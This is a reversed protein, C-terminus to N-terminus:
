SVEQVTGTIEDGSIVGIIKEFAADSIESGGGSAAVQKYITADVTGVSADPTTFGSDTFSEYQITLFTTNPMTLSLNRYLGNAVHTLTFPSGSVETGAANWVTAKVYRATARRPHNYVLPVTDGVELM